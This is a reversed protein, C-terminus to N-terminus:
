KEFVTKISLTSNLWRLLFRSEREFDTPNTVDDNVCFTYPKSEEIEIKNKVDVYRSGTMKWFHTYGRQSKYVGLGSLVTFHQVLFPWNTSGFTRVKQTRTKQIERTFSKEVANLVSKRFFYATHSLYPKKRKLLIKFHWNLLSNTHQITNHWMSKRAQRYDPAYGSEVYIQVKGDQLFFSPPTPRYFLFDDNMYIFCESLAPLTHIYTEIAESNFNPLDSPPFLSTHPVVHLTYTLNEVIEIQPFQSQRFFVNEHFKKDVTENLDFYFIDNPSKIFNPIQNDTILFYNKIYPLYMFVSRMSYKLTQSDRFRNKDVRKKIHQKYKKYWQQDSGNVWLWVADIRGHCVSPIDNMM